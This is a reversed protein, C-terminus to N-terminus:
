DSQHGRMNEYIQIELDIHPQHHFIDVSISVVPLMLQGLQYGKVLRSQLM